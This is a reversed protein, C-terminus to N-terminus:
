NSQFPVSLSHFIPCFSPVFINIPSVIPGPLNLCSFISQENQNIPCEATIGPLRDHCCCVLM